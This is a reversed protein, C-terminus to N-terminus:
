WLTEARGRKERQQNTDERSLSRSLSLSLSLSSFGFPKGWGFDIENFGFNCWHTFGFTEPEEKQLLEAIMDAYGSILLFGEDGHLSRMFDGNVGTILKSLLKTNSLLLYCNQCKLPDIGGTKAKSYRIGMENIFSPKFVSFYNVSICCSLCV